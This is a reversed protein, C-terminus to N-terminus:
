KSFQELIYVRNSASVQPTMGKTNVRKVEERGQDDLCGDILYRALWARCVLEKRCSLDSPEYTTNLFENGIREASPKVRDLQATQLAQEVVAYPGKDFGQLPFSSQVDIANAVAIDFDTILALALPGLDFAALTPSQTLLEEILVRGDGSDAAAAAAAAGGSSDSGSGSSERADSKKKDKSSSKRGRDFDVILASSGDCIALSYLKGTKTYGPALGLVSSSSTEIASLTKPTIKSESVSVVKIRRNLDAGPGSLVPQIFVFPLPPM